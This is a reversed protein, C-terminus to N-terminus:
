APLKKSVMCIELIHVAHFGELRFLGQEGFCPKEKEAKM